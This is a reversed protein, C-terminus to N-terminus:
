QSVERERGSALGWAAAVEHRAWLRAYRGGAAVLEPHRGREVIRGRDLVAIQDVDVITSLRHAIILVTRGHTLRAIADQIAAESEPDAFATAEDLIVIPARSLVARAITIRQRQGGSLRAGREGVQTDYGDPLERTIFEHAAAAEAATRVEEDTAEPRALRINEAVTGSVLFPDQFVLTVHRLLTETRIERVDVGGVRVTGAEVDFFRPILRAVTSKGSGSPGVLACVTGTPVDLDVGDLVPEGREAAYRFRVGELSIASGQPERPNAPEPLPPTHLLGAIRVAGAKSDNLFNTLHMLPAIAEVPMAGIMLALVLDPVSIWDAALMPVASAAVILLTPLPVIFLQNLVGSTRSTAIWSAVAETFERVAASFRGFSGKGDDFTRVVPMGQVFEVVAANVNENARNYRARQEAHDRTLLSLCLVAIPVILLVAILLRWQVVGLTLLAALPQALGSGVFPLADAVANHLAKVDDQVIKKVRGSGLRQVEGLPMRALADALERRLVVELDYSAEHALHEALWRSAFSVLLGALAGALWGVPVSGDDTFLRGVAFAACAFGAVTAAGGLVGLLAARVLRARVAPALAVLGALVRLGGREAM